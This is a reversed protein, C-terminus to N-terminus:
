KRHASNRPSDKTTTAQHDFLKLKQKDHFIKIAGDIKFSLKTPYLM